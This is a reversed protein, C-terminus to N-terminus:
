SVAWGAPLMSSMQGPSCISTIRMRSYLRFGRVQDQSARANVTAKTGVAVFAPTRILGHPTTIVGSRGLRGPLSTVPRFGFPADSPQHPSLEDFGSRRGEVLEPSM